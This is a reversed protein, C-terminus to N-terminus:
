LPITPKVALLVASLLDGLPEILAEIEDLLELPFGYYIDMFGELQWYTADLEEQTCAPNQKLFYALCLYWLINKNIKKDDTAARAATVGAVAKDVADCKAPKWNWFRSSFCDHYRNWYPDLRWFLRQQKKSLHGYQRLFEQELEYEKAAQLKSFASMNLNPVRTPPHPGLLNVLEEAKTPDIGPNLMILDTQISRERFTRRSAADAAGQPKEGQSVASKYDHEM